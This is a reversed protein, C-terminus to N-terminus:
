FGYTSMNPLRNVTIYIYMYIYKQKKTKKNKKRLSKVRYNKDWFTYAFVSIM